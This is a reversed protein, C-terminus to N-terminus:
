GALLLGAPMVTRVASSTIAITVMRHEMPRIALLASSLMPQISSRPGPEPAHGKQNDNPM